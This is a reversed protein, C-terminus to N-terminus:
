NDSTAGVSCSGREEREGKGEEEKKSNNNSNITQKNPQNTPKNTPKDTKNQQKKGPSRGLETLFVSWSKEALSWVDWYVAGACARACGM